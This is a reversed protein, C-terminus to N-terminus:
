KGLHHIKNTQVLTVLLKNIKNTKHTNVIGNIKNHKNIIGNIKDHKNISQNMQKNREKVSHAQVLTALLRARLAGVGSKHDGVPGESAVLVVCVSM